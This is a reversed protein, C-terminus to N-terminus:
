KPIQLGAAGPEALRVSPPSQSEYGEFLLGGFPALAKEAFEILAAPDGRAFLAEFARSFAAGLAPDVAALSRPTWKATAAWARDADPFRVKLVPAALAEADKPTLM